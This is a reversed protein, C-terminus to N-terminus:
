FVQDGISEILKCYLTLNEDMNENFYVEEFVQGIRELIQGNDFLDKPRLRFNDDTISASSFLIQIAPSSIKNDRRLGQLEQEQSKQEM